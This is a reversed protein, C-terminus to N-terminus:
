FNASQFNLWESFSYKFSRDNHDIMKMPIYAVCYLGNTAILEHPRAKRTKDVRQVTDISIFRNRVYLRKFFEKCFRHLYILKPLCMSDKCWHRTRVSISKWNGSYHKKLRYLNSLFFYFCVCSLLECFCLQISTYM